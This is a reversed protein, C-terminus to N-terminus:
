TEHGALQNKVMPENLWHESTQVHNKRVYKAVNTQFDKLLFGNYNRVVYGEMPDSKNWIERFNWAEKILTEDYQGQWIVPVPELGLVKCWHQTEAWELCKDGDWISFVYFYTKLNTYHISHKAFVNEGCIRWNEPIHWKLSGHFAQVWTRSPHSAMNMISRAHIGDRYLTTNEGDLKETMVVFKGNFCEPNELVRDDNQLGPSWPFHMTKPYKTRNHM